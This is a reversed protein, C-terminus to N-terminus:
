AQLSNMAIDHSLVVRDEADLIQAGITRKDWDLTLLGINNASFSPGLRNPGAEERHPGNNGMNFSSATIETLPYPLGRAEQYIGARHRDGSVLIVGNARTKALLAYFRAREAPFLRWCEYGHGDAILQYSTVIIRIDAPQMLQAELWAWQAPGLVTRSPDPNEVWAERGPAGREPPPTWDDRFSRTDLLITQVRAGTPGTIASEYIGGTTRRPSAAPVDWFDFFLPRSQNKYAYTAGADNLGFDHDDWTAAIPVAERFRRYDPRALAAAYAAVLEDLDPSRTDGYVNDGMFLFLQPNTRLATGLLTGPRNQNFCSGLGIRTLLTDPALTPAKPISLRGALTPFSPGSTTCGALATTAAISGLFTRRTLM